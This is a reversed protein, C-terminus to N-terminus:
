FKPIEPPPSTQVGEGGGQYAVPTSWNEPFPRQTNQVLYESRSVLKGTENDSLGQNLGKPRSDHSTETLGEHLHRSIINFLVFVDKKCTRGVETSVVARVM